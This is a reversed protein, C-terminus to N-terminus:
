KDDFHLMYKFLISIYLIDCYPYTRKISHLLIKEKTSNTILLFGVVVGTGVVVLFVVVVVVFFGCLFGIIIIFGGIGVLFDILFVGSCGGVAAVLFVVLFVVDGGVVVVAAVVIFVVKGVVTWIAMAVVGAVVVGM